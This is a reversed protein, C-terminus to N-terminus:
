RIPMRFYEERRCCGENSHGHEPISRRRRPSIKLPLRVVRPFRDSPSSGPLEPSRTLVPSSLGRRRLTGPGEGCRRCMGGGGEGVTRCGELVRDLARLDYAERTLRARLHDRRQSEACQIKTEAM